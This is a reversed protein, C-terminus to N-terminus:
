NGQKSKQGISEGVKFYHAHKKATCANQITRYMCAVASFQGRSTSQLCFAVTISFKLHGLLPSSTYLLSRYRRMLKQM